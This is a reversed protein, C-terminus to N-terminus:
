RVTGPLALRRRALLRFFWLIVVFGLVSPLIQSWPQGFRIVNGVFASLMAFLSAVIKYVHEFPWVVAHWRRPFFWRAADYVLLAALAGLTPYLISPATGGSDALLIPVLSIAAVVGVATWLGDIPAPGEGKTYIVRWGSVLQYLVVVNLVAFLPLFRFFASGVAASLCVILTVWAYRRGWERHTATGKPRALMTFGIALGVAGALVHVALNTLHQPSM